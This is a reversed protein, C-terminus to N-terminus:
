SVKKLVLNQGLCEFHWFGRVKLYGDKTLWAKANWDKGRSADYIKGGQWDDEDANYVLGHMVEMGIIKRSRLVENPNKNDYKIYVPKNKNNSNDVWIVRAKYENAAKFVEVELNNETSMWRGIIADANHQAAATNSLTIILVPLFLFKKM